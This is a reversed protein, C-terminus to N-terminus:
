LWRKDKSPASGALARPGPNYKTGRRHSHPYVRSIHLPIPYRGTSHCQRSNDRYCLRLKDDRISNESRRSAGTSRDIQKHLHRFFSIIQRQQETPSSFPFKNLNPDFYNLNTIKDYRDVVAARLAGRLMLLNQEGVYRSRVDPYRDYMEIQYVIQRLRNPSINQFTNLGFLRALAGADAVQSIVDSSLKFLESGVPAKLDWSKSFGAGAFFTFNTLGVRHSMSHQYSFHTVLEM